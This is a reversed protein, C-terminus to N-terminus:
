TASGCFKFDSCSGVDCRVVDVTERIAVQADLFVRPLPEENGASATGPSGVAAAAICLLMMHLAFIRDPDLQELSRVCVELRARSDRASTRTRDRESRTKVLSGTHARNPARLVTACSGYILCECDRLIDSRYHFEATGSFLRIVTKRNEQRQALQCTSEWLLRSAVPGAYSIRFCM